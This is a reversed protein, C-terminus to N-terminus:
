LRPVCMPGMKMDKVIFVGSHNYVLSLCASVPNDIYIMNYKANWSFKRSVVSM